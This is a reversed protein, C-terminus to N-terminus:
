GRARLDRIRLGLALLLAFYCAMALLILGALWVIREWRDAQLWQLLAPSALHLVLAMLVAAVGVQLALRRWGQAPAYAQARRLGRWLLFANVYAALSTALALGAHQLPYILALNLLMNAVMAIVGIRVPTRTDQRAYFGPALVKILLFAQLGISYAMLSREAMLVDRADFESSHFLTSMLPGALMILGVAAPIGFILTMRLGWDLTHSFAVPAAEAQRRSLRPLIVTSLAVGLIGVPFEMLRDSYYLWSISGSVLFSALVTDLLLNIQTVSVAFLAPVMLKLVRRVGPDHFGPSPRPILGIRALFPLQFTFQTIGALLVGWALAVVPREMLPALWLAAAILCLNLLVPTFAPVAFRDHANLIGGAFATLSIFFLYPFTLRLMDAALALKVTEGDIVWGIAFLSVVLPAAIVGILSVALTVLGLSGAIHDVFEKLERPDRKSRYETLVPVFATAFAGEGFLRRLFNPIKFAVFFADTQADAGFVQALVLDRIFGLIRSLFTHGGVTSLSKFLSM